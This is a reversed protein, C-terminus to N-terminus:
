HLGPVRMRLRHVVQMLREQASGQQPLIGLQMFLGANDFHVIEAEILGDAAIPIRVLLPLRFHRGTPAWGAWSGLHTGEITAEFFVNGETAYYREDTNRLDPVAAFTDEYWRRIEDKGRLEIGLGPVQYYCRETFTAVTAEVDQRDEAAMHAKVVEIPDGASGTKSM